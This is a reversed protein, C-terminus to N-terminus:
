VGVITSSSSILYSLQVVTTPYSAFDYSGRFPLVLDSLLICLVERIRTRIVLLDVTYSRIRGKEMKGVDIEISIRHEVRKWFMLEITKRKGVDLGGQRSPSSEFTEIRQSTDCALLLLPLRAVLVHM